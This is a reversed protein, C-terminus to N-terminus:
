HWHTPRTTLPDGEQDERTTERVANSVLISRIADALIFNYSNTEKYNTLSESIHRTLVSIKYFLFNSDTTMSLSVAWPINFTLSGELFRYRVHRSRATLYINSSLQRASVHRHSLPYM